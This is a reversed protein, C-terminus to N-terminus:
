AVRQELELWRRALDRAEIELRSIAALDGALEADSLRLTALVHAAKLVEIEARIRNRARAASTLAAAAAELHPWSSLVVAIANSRTFRPSSGPTTLSPVRM